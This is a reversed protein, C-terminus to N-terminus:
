AKIESSLDCSHTLCASHPWTRYCYHSHNISVWVAGLYDLFVEHAEPLKGKYFASKCTDDLKVRLFLHWKSHWWEVQRLSPWVLSHSGTWDRGQALCERIGMWIGGWCGLGQREWSRPEWKGDAVMSKFVQNSVKRGWKSDKEGGGMWQWAMWLAWGWKHAEEFWLWLHLTGQVSGWGLVHLWARRM